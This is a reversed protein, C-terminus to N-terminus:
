ATEEIAKEADRIRIEGSMLKPLLTDRMETLKLSEELASDARKELVDLKPRLQIAKERSPLVLRLTALQSRSLETQGTSGEGLAEIEPQIDLMSFGSCVPDTRVPDFRVITIHSDATCPSEGTWRALRGLTGVGTSNVLIDHSRLMKSTPVKDGITRRSPTLNVRGGRICKQNLVRLQSNDETYRPAVGRSLFETISALQVEQADNEAVAARFHTQGLARASEAIRDNVAIKDDLARLAASIAKQEWIPPVDIQVAGIRAPATHLIKTGSATSVLQQNVMKTLFCYFAFRKDLLAPNIIVKGIRQNHLYTRGDDPIMGPLGLIEGGPTQCTMAILLDGSCLEFQKPYDGTFERIRTSEFRFGGRYNFNGISVVIPNGTIIESMKDGSFAYGHVVELLGDLRRRQWTDPM